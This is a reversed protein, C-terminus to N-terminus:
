FYIMCHIKIKIINKRINILFIKLIFNKFIFDLVINIIEVKLTLYSILTNKLYIKHHNTKM